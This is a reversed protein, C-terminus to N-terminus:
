QQLGFDSLASFFDKEEPCVAGNSAECSVSISKFTVELTGTHRNYPTVYDAVPADVVDVQGNNTYTTTHTHIHGFALKDTTDVVDVSLDM